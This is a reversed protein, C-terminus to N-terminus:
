IQNSCNYIQKSNQPFFVSFHNGTTKESNSNFNFYKTFDYHEIQSNGHCQSICTSKTLHKGHTFCIFMEVMEDGQEFVKCFDWVHFMQILWPEQDSREARPTTWVDQMETM